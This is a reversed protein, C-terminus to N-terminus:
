KPWESKYTVRVDYAQGKGAFDHFVVPKYGPM